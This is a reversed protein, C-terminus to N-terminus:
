IETVDIVEKEEEVIDELKDEEEKVEEGTLFREKYRALLDEYKWKLDELDRELGEIRTKEVEDVPDADFTDAIDEMLDVKKEDEIDLSNIRELLIEKTVKM